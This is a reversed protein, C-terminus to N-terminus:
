YSDGSCLWEFYTTELLCSALTQGMNVNNESYNVINVGFYKITKFYTSLADFFQPSSLFNEAHQM